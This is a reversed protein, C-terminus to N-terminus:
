SIRPASRDNTTTKKLKVGRRIANLMDEGQLSQGPSQDEVQSALQCPPAAMSLRERESGEGESSEAATQRQEEIISPKQIPLPHNVAAQGSWSSSVGVVGQNSGGAEPSQDPSEEGGGLM